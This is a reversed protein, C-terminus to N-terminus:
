NEPMNKFLTKVAAEAGAKDRLEGSGANVVNFWVIDGSDLDVLSAFGAESGTELNAGAATAIISVATRGGSAQYDRYFVFLAYDAAHNEGIASIEPGLSWDFEGGKGPLKDRGFYHKQVASGVAAHLTEYRIETPGLNDKDLIKLDAGISEAFDSTAAAFNAQAAETWERNPEIVGGASIRYYRIDPPMLVISPKEDLAELRDLTQVSSACGTIWLTFVVFVVVNRV